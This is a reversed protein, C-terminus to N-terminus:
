CLDLSKHNHIPQFRPKCKRVAINAEYNVWANGFMGVLGAIFFFVFFHNFSRERLTILDHAVTAFRILCPGGLNKEFNM